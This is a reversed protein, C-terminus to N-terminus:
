RAIELAKTVERLLAAGKGGPLILMDFNKPDVEDLTMTVFIKFGSKGTITGKKTSAIDVHIGLERLSQYPIKLECEEFLDASIILARM